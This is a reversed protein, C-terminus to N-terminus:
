EEYEFKEAALTRTGDLYNTGDLQGWKRWVTLKMPIRVEQKITHMNMIKLPYNDSRKKSKYGTLQYKGDLFNTGNLRRIEETHLPNFRFYYITKSLVSVKLILDWLHNCLLEFQLPVAEELFQMVEKTITWVEEKLVLRIELKDNDVIFEFNEKGGCMLELRRQVARLTYPVQQNWKILVRNRRIELSDSEKKPINLIEEFRRIGKIDATQIFQSNCNDMIKEKIRQLEPETTDYIVQIEKIEQLIPPLREILM